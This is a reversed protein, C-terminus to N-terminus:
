PSLLRFSAWDAGNQHASLVRVADQYAADTSISPIRLLDFLRELSKELGKDAAALATATDTM